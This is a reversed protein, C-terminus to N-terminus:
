LIFDSASLDHVDLSALMVDRGGIRSLALRDGSSAALLAQLGALDLSFAGLDFRDGGIAFDTIMDTASGPADPTASDRSFVFVDNGTGGTMQDAGAGGIVRDNATVSVTFSGNGTAVMLGFPPM